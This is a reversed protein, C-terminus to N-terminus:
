EVGEPKAHERPAADAREGRRPPLPTQGVSAEILERIFEDLELLDLELADLSRIAATDPNIVLEGSPTRVRAVGRAGASAVVDTRREGGIAQIGLRGLSRGLRGVSGASLLNDAFEARAAPRRIVVLEVAGTAGRRETRGAGPRLPRGDAAFGEVLQRVAADQWAAHEALASSGLETLVLPQAGDKIVVLPPATPQGGSMRTIELRWRPPLSYAEARALLVLSDAGRSAPNPRYVWDSWRARVPAATQAEAPAAGALACLALAAVVVARGLLEYVHVAQTKGKVTVEEVPRFRFRGDVQDVTSQSVLVSTGFEKNLSELRSALNVTDGIATYDLKRSLSGINGVIAEGTNIGIGIALQAPAGRESWRANLAALESQMDLAAALARDAHDPAPLPAGWFAMVADGIFKDLTGGHRFVIESMRELYENLLEIVTAAPLRESLSTFGRIDSFLLTLETREGGLKLSEAEDALRRVYEPAVYRSFLDRVRRRERGETVYNAVATVAFALGAALLPAVLDLWVGQALALTTLAILAGVLLAFALTAGAVSTLGATVVGSALGAFALLLLHAAPGARTAPAGQLLNDLATMHQMVGPSEDEVPTPRVEFLGPATVAIFVIKDAFTELPVDAPLGNLEQRYSDLIQYATYRAYTAYGADLFPGRWRVLMDGDPGVPIRESGVVLELPERSVPGAFRAPEVV